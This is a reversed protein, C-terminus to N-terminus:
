DRKLGSDITFHVFIHATLIWVEFLVAKKSVGRASLFHGFRPTHPKNIIVSVVTYPKNM